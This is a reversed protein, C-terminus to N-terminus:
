AMASFAHLPHATEFTQFNLSLERHLSIKRIYDTDYLIVTM